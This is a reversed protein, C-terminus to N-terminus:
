FTSSWCIPRAECGEFVAPDVDGAGLPDLRRLDDGGRERQAPGDLRAAGRGVGQDDGRAGDVEVDHAAHLGRHAAPLEDGGAAAGHADLAEEGEARQRSRRLGIADLTARCERASSM